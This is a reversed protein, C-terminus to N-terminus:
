REGWLRRIADIEPQLPAPELLCARAALKLLTLYERQTITVLQAPAKPARPIERAEKEAEPTSDPLITLPRPKIGDGGMAWDYSRAAM